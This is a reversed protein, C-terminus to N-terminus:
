VGFEALFNQKVTRIQIDLKRGDACVATIHLSQYGNSKPCRIYDKIGEIKWIKQVLKFVSYCTAKDEVIIRLGYVDNIDEFKKVKRQLKNLISYYSKSRGVTLVTKKCVNADM